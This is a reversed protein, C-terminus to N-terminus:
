NELTEWEEYYNLLQQEFDDLENLIKSTSQHDKKYFDVHNIEEQLTEIRKELTAIEDPLQELRRKQNFSLKNQNTKAENQVPQINSASSNSDSNNKNIRSSAQLYEQKYNLWDSFGGVIDILKGKNEIDSDPFADFVICNSVTNDVFSRDHSVLLLTGQYKSILEELLELTEMDLDNTPEDLVLLNNSQSFLRALVLRNLEGGSLAKAPTRIRQPAFLFDQLYSIVHRSKGGIIMEDKGGSVNDQVTKELDIAARNQDFYAIDLNTGIKVSGSSPSLQGLIIKLLTTKGCGNPGILAIKDGRMVIASFNKILLQDDFQHSIQNLEAVLKGSKRDQEINFKAKGEINKRAARQERMAELARVRGENRTRRAKIGQRIWVEEQALKKDFEANAKSEASLLADKQKRYQSYNGPFSTIVGRDLEIVRSAVNDMFQRDHTILLIAGEFQRIYNELWEIAYIDLHNTPEDLLLIDPQVVVAKALAAKKKWGGSLSAMTANPELNFSELIRRIRNDFRWGDSLEIQEQLKQMEILQIQSLDSLLTLQHYEQLTQGLKELGLAVFDYVSQSTAVPMQQELESIVIEKRCKVLGSDPQIRRSLIGFLSSKGTGNRGILCLKEGKHLNFSAEDLLPTLGFALSIKDLSLLSMVAKGAM